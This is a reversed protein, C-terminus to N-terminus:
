DQYERFSAVADLRLSAIQTEDVLWYFPVGDREARPNRYRHTYKVNKSTFFPSKPEASQKQALKVSIQIELNPGYEDPEEIVLRLQDLRMYQAPCKTGHYTVIHDDDCVGEADLAAEGGNTTLFTAM